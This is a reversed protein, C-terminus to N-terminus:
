KRYALFSPAHPTSSKSLPYQSTEIRVSCNANAGTAFASPITPALSSSPKLLLGLVVMLALNEAMCLRDYNRNYLAENPSVYQRCM